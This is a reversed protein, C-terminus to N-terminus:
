SLIPAALYAAKEAMLQQFAQKAEEARDLNKDPHLTRQLERFIRQRVACPDNRTQELRARMMDVLSTAPV